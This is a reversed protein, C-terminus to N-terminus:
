ADAPRCGDFEWLLEKNLEAAVEGWTPRASHALLQALAQAMVPWEFALVILKGRGWRAEPDRALRVPTVVSFNFAEEEDGDKPGIFAQFFIECDSPDDPMAPPELDPSHIHRIEPYIM